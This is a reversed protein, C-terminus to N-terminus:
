DFQHSKLLAVVGNVEMLTKQTVTLNVNKALQDQIRESFKRWNLNGIQDKFLQMDLEYTEKMANINVEVLNDHKLSKPLVFKANGTYEILNFGNYFNNLTHYEQIKFRAADTQDSGEKVALEYSKLLSALAEEFQQKKMLALSENFFFEYTHHFEEQSKIINDVREISKHQNASCALLNTLLDSLEDGEVTNSKLITELNDISDTYQGLKYSVQAYLHKAAIDGDQIEIQKLLKLAEANRGLRHLV